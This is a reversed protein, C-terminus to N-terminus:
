RKSNLIDRFDQFLSGSRNSSSQTSFQGPNVRQTLLQQNDSQTPVQQTYKFNSSTPVSGASQTGSSKLSVSGFSTLTSSSLKSMSPAYSQPAPSHYPARGLINSSIVKSTNLKKFKEVQVNVKDFNADTADISTHVISSLKSQGELKEAIQSLIDNTDDKCMFSGVSCKVLSSAHELDNLVIAECDSSSLYSLGLISRLVLNSDEELSREMELTNLKSLVEIDDESFGSSCKLRFSDITPTKDSLSSAHALQESLSLLEKSESM